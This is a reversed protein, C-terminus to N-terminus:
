LWTGTQKCYALYDAEEPTSTRGLVANRHPFRGFRAIVDLHKRAFEMGGKIEAFGEPDRLAIRTLLAMGEKQAELDEAHEFPLIAFLQETASLNSFRNAAHHTRTWALAQPDSTFAEPKNRYINRSFQDVLILWALAGRPTTGWSELKGARAQEVLTGFQAAIEADIEPGGGFWLKQKEAREAANRGFWYALVRDVDDPDDNM